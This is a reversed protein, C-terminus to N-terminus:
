FSDRRPSRPESNIGWSEMAGNIYSILFSVEGFYVKADRHWFQFLTALLNEGGLDFDRLAAYHQRDIGAIRINLWVGSSGGFWISVAGSKFREDYNKWIDSVFGEVISGNGFRAKCIGGIRIELDPLEALTCTRQCNPHQDQKFEVKWLEPSQDFDGEEFQAQAYVPAGRPGTISVMRSKRREAALEARLAQIEEIQEMVVKDRITAAVFSALDSMITYVFRFTCSALLIAKKLPSIM